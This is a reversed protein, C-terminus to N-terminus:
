HIKNGWWYRVALSEMKNNLSKPLLFSSMMYSPIAQTVAKIMTARGAYSLTNGKWINLRHRIKDLLFNFSRFKSKGVLTPLGSYTNIRTINHTNISTTFIDRKGNPTSNNFEM